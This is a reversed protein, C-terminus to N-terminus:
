LRINNKIATELESYRPLTLIINEGAEIDYVKIENVSIDTKIIEFSAPTDNTALEIEAIAFVSLDISISQNEGEHFLYDRRTFKGMDGDWDLEITTPRLESILKKLNM